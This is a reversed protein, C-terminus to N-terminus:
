IAARCRIAGSLTRLSQVADARRREPRQTGARARRSPYQVGHTLGAPGMRELAKRIGTRGGYVGVGGVEYVGEDTFLESVDDWMRRDVYYGYSAQLNRM